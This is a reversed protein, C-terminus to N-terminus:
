NIVGLKRGVKVFADLAKNLNEKSHSASIIVRIRAKGEPVTPFGIATAFIKEKFLQSSFEKALKVDGLMVPVIPTVSKGIDFRSSIM